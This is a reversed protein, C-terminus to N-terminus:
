LLGRRQRVWGALVVGILVLAPALFVGPTPPLTGREVWNVLVGVGSFYVTALVLAGFLGWARHGRPKTSVLTGVSLAMVLVSLPAVWRWQWEAIEIPAKAGALRAMSMARRIKQRAAMPKPEVLVTLEDFAAVLDDERERQDMIPLTHSSIDGKFRLRILGDPDVTQTMEEATFVTKRSATRQHVFVDKLTTGERQQAYILWEADGVQFRGPELRTIDLQKALQAEIDYFIGYGWPRVAMSLAAVLLVVGLLWFGLTRFMQFRSLGAAHLATLENAQHIRSLGIVGGLLVAVPILVDLYLLLRLAAMALVSEVPLNETAAQGLLRASYFVAVVAVLFLLVGWAPRLMARALYREILM